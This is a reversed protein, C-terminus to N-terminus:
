FDKDKYAREQPQPGRRDAMETREGQGIKSLLAACSSCYYATVPVSQGGLWARETQSYADTSVEIGCRECHEASPQPAKFKPNTYDLLEGRGAKRTTERMQEFLHENLRSCKTEVTEIAGDPRRVRVTAKKM